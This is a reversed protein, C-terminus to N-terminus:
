TVVTAKTNLEDQDTILKETIGPGVKIKMFRSRSKEEGHAVGGAGGAIGIYVAFLQVSIFTKL